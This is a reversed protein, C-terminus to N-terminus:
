PTVPGSGCRANPRGGDALALFMAIEHPLPGDAVSLTMTDFHDFSWVNDKHGLPLDIATGPGGLRVNSTIVAQGGGVAARLPAGLRPHIVAGGHEMDGAVGVMAAKGYSVAPAGLQRALDGALRTGLDAGIEFLASLDPRFAGALPNTFVAIVAVRTLPPAPRASHM